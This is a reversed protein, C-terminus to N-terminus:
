NEQSSKFVHMKFKHSIAISVAWANLAAVVCNEGCVSRKGRILGRLAGAEVHQFFRLYILYIVSFSLRTANERM